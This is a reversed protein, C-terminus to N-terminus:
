TYILEALVIEEAADRINNMEQVWRMQDTVKLAETIYRQQKLRGILRNTRDRAQEDIEALYGGLKGSMMLSAYLGRKNEKIFDRHLLGYKGIARQEKSPLTLDPLWYDGKLHYTIEKMLLAEKAAMNYRVPRSFVM